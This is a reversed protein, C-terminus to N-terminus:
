AKFYESLCAGAKALLDKYMKGDDPFTALGYKIDIKDLIRKEDFCKQLMKDFRQRVLLSHEKNCDALIVLIDKDTTILEDGQRRLTNKMMRSCDNIVTHFSKQAFADPQGDKYRMCIFVLSVKSKNRAANDVAKNVTEFFLSEETYKRLSFTFRSGMAPETEVSISGHHMDIIGKVISLGLGTGKEGAGAVRGFQQFKNFLRPLDERSIGVGTDKVSVIIEEGKGKCSVEIYGSSTFKMANGLLNVMVQVMKDHDAYVSGANRDIDIRLELGKEKAKIEFSSAVDSVLASMDILARKLDVKGAEIKSIDLLDDIIRALRDINFKSIDLIKVQKDNIDGPVRDLVLSIGEKIISLPTRLEHSVTSIFDSKLQDLQKLEKNSRELFKKAEALDELINLTAEQTKTLERTRDKVKEELGRSFSELKEQKEKINKIMEKFVDAFHEIEDGTRVEINYNWDGSMVHKTAVELDQVPRSIMGGFFAGVPITFILLILTIGILLALFKYLPRFTEASDQVVFLVWNTGNDSLQPLKVVFYACFSNKEYNLNKNNAFFGEKQKLLRAMEESSCFKEKMPSLNEYFIINGEMDTLVTHGTEGIKLLKVESILREIEVRNKCIGVIEGDEDKMPAAVAMTWKSSFQDFEIGSVYISGNGNNYAAQWWDKDAYYFNSTRGSAAVVGGYKDTIFVRDVNGMLKVIDRMSVSIRNDLYEWFIPDGSPASVWKKDMEKLNREIEKPGMKNYKSNITKVADIWLLRSAYIKTDGIQDKFNDQLYEGLVKSLQAYQKGIAKNLLSTGFFYALSIGIIIMVLISSCIIITVKQKILM